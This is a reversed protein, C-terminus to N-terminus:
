DIIHGRGLVTVPSKPVRWAIVSCGEHEAVYNRAADEGDRGNWTVVRERRSHPAMVLLEYVSM